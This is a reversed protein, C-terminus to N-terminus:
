LTGHLELVNEKGHLGDVNQTILGSNILGNRMMARLAHHTTNPKAQEIRPWGLFSRAWYRQRSVHNGVFEQYQIPKYDKM